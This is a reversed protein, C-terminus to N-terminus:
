GLARLGRVVVVGAGGRELRRGPRLVVVVWSLGGGGGCCWMVTRAASYVCRWASDGASDADTDGRHRWGLPASLLCRPRLQFSYPFAIVNRTRAALLGATTQDRGESSSPM